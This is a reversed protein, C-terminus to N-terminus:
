TFHATLMRYIVRASYLSILIMVILIAWFLRFYAPHSKNEYMKILRLTIRKSIFLSLLIFSIWIIATLGKEAFYNMILARIIGNPDFKFGSILTLIDSSMLTAVAFTILLFPLLVVISLLIRNIRKMPM